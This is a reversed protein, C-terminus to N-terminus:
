HQPAEVWLALLALRLQEETEPLGLLRSAQLLRRIAAELGGPCAEPAATGLVLILGEM